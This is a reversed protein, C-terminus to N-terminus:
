GCKMRNKWSSVCCWQHKCGINGLFYIEGLKPDLLWKQDKALQERPFGIDKRETVLEVWSIVYFLEFNVSHMLTSAQIKDIAHLNNMKKVLGYIKMAIVVYIHVLKTAWVTSWCNHTTRDIWRKYCGLWNIQFKSEFPRCVFVCLVSLTSDSRFIEPLSSIVKNRLQFRHFHHNNLITQISKTAQISAESQSKTKKKKEHNVKLRSQRPDYFSRPLVLIIQWPYIMCWFSFPRWM